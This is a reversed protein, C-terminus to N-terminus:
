ARRRRGIVLLLVGAGLAIAAGGGLYLPASSGTLALAPPGGSVSVEGLGQSASASTSHSPSASTSHSTSPSASPSKSGSPSPHPKPKHWSTVTCWDITGVNLMDWRAHAGAAGKGFNLGYAVMVADPYKTLIDSWPQPSAQQGNGPLLALPRTSWWKAAGGRLADWSQWHGAVITRGDQYPEYVLTTYGGAAPGNFDLTLNLSPLAVTAPNLQWTRYGLKAVAALLVPSSLPVTYGAKALGDPLTVDVGEGNIAVVANSAPNDASVPEGNSTTLVADTNTLVGTTCLHCKPLKGGPGETANAYGVGLAALAFAALVALGYRLKRM